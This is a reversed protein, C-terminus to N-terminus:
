TIPINFTVGSEKESPPFNLLRSAASTWVSSIIFSPAVIISTPPSDVRGPYVNIESSSSIPRTTGTMRAILSFNSIGTDISVYLLLTAFAAIAAPASRTFSIQPNFYSLFMAFTMASAPTAQQRICLRSLISYVLKISSISASRRSVMCNAFSAPIASSLIM